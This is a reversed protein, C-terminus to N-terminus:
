NYNGSLLHSIIINNSCFHLFLWLNSSNVSSLTLHWHYVGNLQIFMGNPFICNITGVWTLIWPTNDVINNNMYYFLIYTFCFTTCLWVLINNGSSIIIQPSFSSASIWLFSSFQFLCILFALISVLLLTSAYEWILFVLTHYSSVSSTCNFVNLPKRIQPLTQQTYCSLFLVPHLLEFSM